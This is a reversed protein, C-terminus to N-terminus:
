LDYLLTNTASTALNVNEFESEAGTGFHKPDPDSTKEFKLIQSRNLNRSVSVCGFSLLTKVESIVNM